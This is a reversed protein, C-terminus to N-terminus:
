SFLLINWHLKEAHGPSGWQIVKTTGEQRSHCPIPILAVCRDFSHKYLGSSALYLWVAPFVITSSFVTLLHQSASNQQCAWPSDSDSACGVGQPGAAAHSLWGMVGPGTILASFEQAWPPCCSPVQKQAAWSGAQPIQHQEQQTCSPDCLNELHEATCLSLHPKTVSLTLHKLSYVTINEKHTHTYM